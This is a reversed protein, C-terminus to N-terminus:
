RGRAVRLVRRAPLTPTSDSWQRRQLDICLCPIRFTDGASTTFTNGPLPSDAADCLFFDQSLSDSEGRPASLLVSDQQASLCFHRSLIASVFLSSDIILALQECRGPRQNTALVRTGHAM